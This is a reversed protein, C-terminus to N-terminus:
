ESGRESERVKRKVFRSYEAPKYVSFLAPSALGFIFGIATSVGFVSASTLADEFSKTASLFWTIIKGILENLATWNVYLVGAYWLLAIPLLALGMAFILVKALKRTVYGLVAGITFGGIAQLALIQPDM